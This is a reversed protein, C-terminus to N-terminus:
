AEGEGEHAIFDLALAASWTFDPAGLGRGTHPDFYEWFGKDSLRDLTQSVLAGGLMPAFLWAMNVWAPGRWYCTPDFCEAGPRATPLPHETWYDGLLTAKMAEFGAQEAGLMVPAYAPLVDPSLWAQGPVDYFRCRGLESSWLHETLGVRLREARGAAAQALEGQGTAEAMASLAAEARALLTTMFPDYVAFDGPGFDDDMIAKVLAMYRKYQDDTPRQSPDEVRDKDVRQFPPAKAPDVALLPEDWAPCNDLGNEWPHVTVVAGWGLPDRQEHFFLHSRTVSPLLAAIADRHHGADFIRQLALTWIPPNTITSSREKGWSAPGPFYDASPIHFSIHPIRGDEWQGALLTELEKLARAPDLHLWGIAAFASDWAWQHPYLRASPITYGGRDNARLLDAACRRLVERTM